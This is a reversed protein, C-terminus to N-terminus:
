RCEGYLDPRRFSPRIIQPTFFKQPSVPPSAYSPDHYQQSTSEPFTSVSALSDRPAFEADDNANSPPDYATHDNDDKSPAEYNSSTTSARPSKVADDFPDNEDGPPTPIGSDQFIKFHHSKSLRAM